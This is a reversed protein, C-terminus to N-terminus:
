IYYFPLKPKGFNDATSSGSITECQLLSPHLDFNKPWKQGVYSLQGGQPFIPTTMEVKQSNDDRLSKLQKYSLEESNACSITMIMHFLSPLDMHSFFNM